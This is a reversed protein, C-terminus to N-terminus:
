SIDRRLMALLCRRAAADCSQGSGGFQVLEATPKTTPPPLFMEIVTVLDSPPSRAQTSPCLCFRHDAISSASGRPVLHCPVSPSSTQLPSRTHQRHRHVGSYSSTAGRTLAHHHPMPIVALNELPPLPQLPQALQGISSDFAENFALRTSPSVAM